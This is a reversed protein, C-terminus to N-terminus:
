TFPPARKNTFYQTQLREFQICIIISTRLFLNLAQIDQVINIPLVSDTHLTAFKKNENVNSHNYENQLDLTNAEVINNVQPQESLYALMELNSTLLVGFGALLLWTTFPLFNEKKCYLHLFLM